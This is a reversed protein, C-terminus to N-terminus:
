FERSVMPHYDLYLHWVGVVRIAKGQTVFAERGLRFIKRRSLIARRNFASGAARVPPKLTRMAGYLRSFSREKLGSM